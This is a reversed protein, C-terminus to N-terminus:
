PVKEFRGHRVILENLRTLDRIMETQQKTIIELNEIRQQQLNDRGWNMLMGIFFCIMALILLSDSRNM